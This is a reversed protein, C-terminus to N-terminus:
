AAGSVLGRPDFTVRVRTIRGNEVYCWNAVPIPPAVSTLLDFWTLIDGDDAFVKHIELGTKIQSLQRISDRYEEAGTVHALPGVFDVDEALLSHMRDFDNAKWAEFYAAVVQVANTTTM